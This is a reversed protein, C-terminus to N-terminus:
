RWKSVPPGLEKKDFDIEHQWFREGNLEPTYAMVVCVGLESAISTTLTYFRCHETSYFSFESLQKGDLGFSRIIADAGITIIM